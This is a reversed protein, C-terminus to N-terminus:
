CPRLRGTVHQATGLKSQLQRAKLLLDRQERWTAGALVDKVHKEKLEPFDAKLTARIETEHETLVGYTKDVPADTWKSSYTEYIWRM